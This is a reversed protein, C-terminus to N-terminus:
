TKPRVVLVSCPAHRVVRAANPGILYDRREPRHSAMVILDADIERALGLIEGYVSGQRVATEVQVEGGAPTHEKAFADLRRRADEVVRRNADKPVHATDLTLTVDPVVTAVHLRAGHSRAHDVAVPLAERWSGEEHLDIPVLITKYM